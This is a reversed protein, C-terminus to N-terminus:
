KHYAIQVFGGARRTGPTISASEHAGSPHSVIKERVIKCEQSESAFRIGFQLGILMMGLPVHGFTVETGNVYMILLRLSAGIKQDKGCETTQVWSIGRHVSLQAKLIRAM